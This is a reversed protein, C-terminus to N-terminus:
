FAVTAPAVVSPVYLAPIANLLAFLQVYSPDVTYQHWTSWGMHPTAPQGPNESLLEGGYYLKCWGLDETMGANGMMPSTTFIATNDPVLKKLSAVAPGSTSPNVPDLDAGLAVTDDCGHFTVTPLGRLTAQWSLPGENNSVNTEAFSAFPQNMSGATNRVETNTIIADWLISNVWIDTMSYRNLQAYAARIALINGIIRAPDNTWPITIIPGQTPDTGMAQALQGKNTSPIQFNIQFGFQTGTAPTFSPLWDQGNQIVYLSDRMMGAAMLEVINNGMEALYREQQAIYTQGNADIASNPGGMGALNGLMEWQLPIKNHWRAISITNQGVPNAAVTNAASGPASMKLPVRTVNFIRYMVQRITTGTTVTNPGQLTAGDESFRTPHFGLWSGLAGRGRLLKSILGLVIQPQLLEQLSAAM